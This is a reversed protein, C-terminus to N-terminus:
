FDERPIIGKSTKRVITDLSNELKVFVKELDKPITMGAFDKKL